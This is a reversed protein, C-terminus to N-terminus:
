NIIKAACKRHSQRTPNGWASPVFDLFGRLVICCLWLLIAIFLRVMSECKLMEFGIWRYLILSKSICFIRRILFPLLLVFSSISATFSFWFLFINFPPKWFLLMGFHYTTNINAFMTAQETAWSNEGSCTVTDTFSIWRWKRAERYSQSCTKSSWLRSCVM